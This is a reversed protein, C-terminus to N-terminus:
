DLLKRVGDESRGFEERLVREILVRDWNSKLMREVTLARIIAREHDDWPKILDANVMDDKLAKILTEAAQKQTTDFRTFDYEQLLQLLRNFKTLNKDGNGCVNKENTLKYVNQVDSFDFLKKDECRDKRVGKKYKKFRFYHRALSAFATLIDLRNTYVDLKNPLSYKDNPHGNLEITAWNAKPSRVSFEVRWVNVLEGNMTVRQMDDIFGCLYWAQRIYPKGYLGSKHDKLEMTKNYMKTSVISLPNGWKLSNWDQGEWGDKGHVNIDGQNIKAYQHKLYRRVFKAPDDGFDFRVFDLCIDIRSIRIDTYHHFDLFDRLRIACDDFYCMRNHLRIHTEEADHIGNLGQSSPNRRVEISPLGDSGMIVFMERYVRTGYEREQVECGHERFYDANHPQGIPERAHVELWDLNVCRKPISRRETPRRDSQEQEM